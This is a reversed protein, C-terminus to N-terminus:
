IEHFRQTTIQNAWEENITLLQILHVIMFTIILTNELRFATRSNVLADPDTANQMHVRIIITSGPYQLFLESTKPSRVYTIVIYTIKM